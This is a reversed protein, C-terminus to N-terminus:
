FGLVKDKAKMRFLEPRKDSPNGGRKITLEGYIDFVRRM